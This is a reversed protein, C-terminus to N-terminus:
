PPSPKDHDHTLFARIRDILAAKDLSKAEQGPFEATCHDESWEMRCRRGAYNQLEVWSGEAEYLEEMEFLVTALKTLRPRSGTKNKKNRYAMTVKPCPSRKWDLSALFDHRISDVLDPSEDGSLECRYIPFAVFACSNLVDNRHEFQKAAAPSLVAVTDFSYPPCTFNDLLVLPKEISLASARNAVFALVATALSEDFFDRSSLDVCYEGEFIPAVVATFRHAPTEESLIFAGPIFTFPVANWRALEKVLDLSSKM